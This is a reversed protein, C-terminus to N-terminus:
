KNALDVLYSGVEFISSAIQDKLMNPFNSNTILELTFDGEYNIEKLTAMIKTWNATGQYPLLHEDGEGHNDHIHTMRLYPSIAKIAITQDYMNMNGHGFDWCIGFRDDNYSKVLQILDSHTSGFRRKPGYQPLNEFNVNINNKLCLEITQSHFKHNLEISAEIDGETKISETSPHIVTNTAGLRKTAIISRKTMEMFYAKEEESGWRYDVGSKFPIHSQNFIVGLKKAQNGLNDIYQEWDDDCIRSAGKGISAVCFDFVRFGVDYARKICEIDDILKEENPLQRFINTMIALQM